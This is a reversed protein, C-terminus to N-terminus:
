FILAIGFLSRQLLIRFMTIVTSVAMAVVKPTVEHMYRWGGGLGPSCFCFVALGNVVLLKVTKRTRGILISSMDDSGSDPIRDMSSLACYVWIKRHLLVWLRQIKRVFEFFFIGCVGSLCGESRKEFLIFVFVCIKNAIYCIIEINAAM